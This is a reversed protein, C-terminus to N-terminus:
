SSLEEVIQKIQWKEQPVQKSAPSVLQWEHGAREFLDVFGTPPFHSHEMPYFLKQNM